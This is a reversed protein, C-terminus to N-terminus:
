DNSFYIIIEEPDYWKGKVNVLYGKCNKKAKDKRNYYWLLTLPDASNYGHYDTFRHYKKVESRLKRKLKNEM